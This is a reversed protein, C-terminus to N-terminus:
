PLAHAFQNLEVVVREVLQLLQRAPAGIILSHEPFEKGEPIIAGAGVISGRRIRAGNMVISVM